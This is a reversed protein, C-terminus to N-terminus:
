FEELQGRALGVLRRRRVDLAVPLAQLGGDPVELELAHEAPLHVRM